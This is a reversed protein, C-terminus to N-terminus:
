MNHKKKKITPVSSLIDLLLCPLVYFMPTLSYHKCGFSLINPVQVLLAMPKKALEWSIKIVDFTCSSQTGWTYSATHFTAIFVM